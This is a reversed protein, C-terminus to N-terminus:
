IAKIPIFRSKLGGHVIISVDAKRTNLGGSCAKCTDCTRVKGAEESAPCSFEGKALEEEASRVRFTRFGKAKAIVREAETDASAMCYDMVADSKGSLWQHTYGTHGNCHQLLADWVYRPVAAPDGYTGLRVMRGACALSAAGLDAPYIARRIGDSVRSPGHGLIVYCSGGLGHRHPCTGCISADQLTAANVSPTQGNDVLIYTQVVNGTKRNGSKKTLAVVVIPKGDLMSPGRYVIYGNPMKAM